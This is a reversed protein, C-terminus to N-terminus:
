KYGGNATNMPGVSNPASAVVAASNSTFWKPDIGAAINAAANINGAQKAATGASSTAKANNLAAAYAAEGQAITMTAQLDLNSAEYETDSLDYGLNRTIDNGQAGTSMNIDDLQWSSTRTLDGIQWDADRRVDKAQELLDEAAIRYNRRVRLADVEGARASDIQMAAPTGTDIMVGRAGYTARQTSITQSTNERVANEDEIGREYTQAAKDRLRGINTDAVEQIRGKNISTVTNIRNTNIGLTTDLRNINIGAVEKLRNVSEGRLRIAQERLVGANYIATDRQSEGNAISILAQEKAAKDADKGAKSSGFAKLGVGALAIATGPDICM